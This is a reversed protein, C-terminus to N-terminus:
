HEESPEDRTNGFSNPCKRRRSRKERLILLLKLRLALPPHLNQSRPLLQMLALLPNLIPAPSEQVTRSSIVLKTATYAYDLKRGIREKLQLSNLTPACLTLKWQFLVMLPQQFPLHALLHVTTNNYLSLSLLVREEGKYEKPKWITISKLAAVSWTM